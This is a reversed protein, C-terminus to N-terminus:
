VIRLATTEARLAHRAAPLYSTSAHGSTRTLWAAARALRSTEVLTIRLRPEAPSASAGAVEPFVRCFETVLPAAATGVENAYARVFGRAFIGTPWKSVDGSELASLQGISIKTLQAIRELSIGRTQRLGRLRQGFAMGDTIANPEQM